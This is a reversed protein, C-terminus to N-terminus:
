KSEDVALGINSFILFRRLIIWQEVTSSVGAEEAVCILKEHFYPDLIVDPGSPNEM